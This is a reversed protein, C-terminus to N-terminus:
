SSDLQCYYCIVVFLIGCVEVVGSWEGEICNFVFNQNRYIDDGQIVFVGLM